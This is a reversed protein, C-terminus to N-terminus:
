DPQETFIFHDDNDPDGITAFLNPHAPDGTTTLETVTVTQTVETLALGGGSGSSAVWPSIQWSGTGNTPLVDSPGGLASPGPDDIVPMGTATFIGDARFVLRAGDSNAWTGVIAAADPTVPTSEGLKHNILLLVLLGFLGAAGMRVTRSARLRAFAIVPGGKAVTCDM